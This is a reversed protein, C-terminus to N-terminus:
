VQWSLVQRQLVTRQGTSSHVVHYVGVCLRVCVPM